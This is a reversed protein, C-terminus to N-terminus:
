FAVFPCISLLVAIHLEFTGPLKLFLFSLTCISLFLGFDVCTSIFYYVHMTGPWSLRGGIGGLTLLPSPKSPLGYALSLVLHSFNTEELARERGLQLM